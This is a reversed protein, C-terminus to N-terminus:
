HSYTVPLKAVTYIWNRLASRHVWVFIPRKKGYRSFNREFVDLLSTNDDPMDITADIGYREYTKLWPSDSDITPMTPFVSDKNNMAANDNTTEKNISDTM